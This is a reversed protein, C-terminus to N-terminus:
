PREAAELWENIGNIGLSLVKDQASVVRLLMEGNDSEEREEAEAFVALCLEVIDIPIFLFNDGCFMKSVQKAVTISMDSNVGERIGILCIDKKHKFNGSHTWVM